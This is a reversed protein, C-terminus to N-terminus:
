DPPASRTGHDGPDPAWAESPIQRLRVLIGFCSRPHLLATRRGSPLESRGVIRVGARELSALARDLDDVDLSLHHLGEGRRELFRGLLGEPSRSEMLEIPYDRLRMRLLRLTGGDGEDIPTEVAAGLHRSFFDAAPAIGHLALSVHDAHWAIGDKRVTGGWSGPVSGDAMEPTQWFQILTGFASRPHVFATKRGDGADFRDVIRFGEAELRELLPDLEDIELSLHHFGEGRRELFRDVFGGPRASELLEIKFRGITFDGWSFDGDYGPQRPEGRMAAFHELFFDLARDFSRVAISVHDVRLRPPKM